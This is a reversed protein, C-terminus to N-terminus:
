VSPDQGDVSLIPVYLDPRRDRFLGWAARAAALSDLDFPATIVAEGRVPAQEVIEGVGDTIFSSGYFTLSCSKGQEVGVRNAAVVPVMNAGAHGQMVRQWHRASDYDPAQPESGIASPYLLLEAGMLVMVRAAEPFWQDWCIGVGVCGIKTHWVRFGTDGLNFYYKEQYGPGDPIHSKRYLGMVKGDADIMALSNFYANNAREFFSVPLVVRLEAALRSMRAVLPHGEIPHALAFHGASQDKCFYPSEFLEQLLVISAGRGAAERVLAEARAVNRDRDWDCAMQTAAVTVERM